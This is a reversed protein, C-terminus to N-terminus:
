ENDGEQKTGVTRFDMILGTVGADELAQYDEPIVHASVYVNSFAGVMSAIHNLDVPTKNQHSGLDMFIATDLEKFDKVADVLQDVNMDAIEHDPSIIIGHYDISFIIKESMEAADELEKLNRLSKTGFVVESADNVFLDMMDEIDQTGADLWVDKYAAIKKITGLNPSSRELGDIDLIFIEDSELEQAVKTPSRFQGESNQLYEYKGNEVIAIRKQMISMAPILKM